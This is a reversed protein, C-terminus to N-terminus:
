RANRYNQVGACGATIPAFLATGIPVIVWSAGRANGILSWVLYLTLLLPWYCAAIVGIVSRRKPRAPTLNGAVTHSWNRPLFLGLGTSVLVLVLVVGAVTWSDHPPEVLLSIAVLPAPALTWLIIAVQLARNRGRENQAALAEAWRTVEANTSFRGETIRRYPATERSTAVLLTVGAAVLSLVVLIGVLTAAPDTLPILNSEAAVPLPLIAIPSLVFLVVAITVRSRIREHAAAYGQAENLTVPAHRLESPLDGESEALATSPSTSQGSM